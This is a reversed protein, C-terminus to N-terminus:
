MLEDLLFDAEKYTKVVTLKAGAHACMEVMAKKDAFSRRLMTKIHFFDELITTESHRNTRTAIRHIHNFIRRYLPIDM